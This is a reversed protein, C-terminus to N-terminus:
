RFPKSWLAGTSKKKSDHRTANLEPEVGSPEKLSRFMCNEIYIYVYFYLFAVRM